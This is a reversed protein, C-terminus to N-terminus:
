FHESEHLCLIEWLAERFDEGNEPQLTKLGFRKGAEINAPGDDVFLTEAPAIKSDDIMKRFIEDSPKVCGMEYSLYCQDFYDALSKGSESFDPSMALNMICPNTNSLLLLRYGKERLEELLRLKYEQIEEIFGWWAWRIDEDTIYEGAERRVEDFFMEESIKGEELELFFGRQHYPDLVEAANLLGVEIFRRVSEQMNLKIIVGGLDFVITKIETSNM